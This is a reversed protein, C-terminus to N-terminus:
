IVQFIIDAAQQTKIEGGVPSQALFAPGASPALM